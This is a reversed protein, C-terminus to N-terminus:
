SLLLPFHKQCMCIASLLVILFTGKWISVHLRHVTDLSLHACNQDCKCSKNPHAIWQLHLDDKEWAVPCLLPWLLRKSHSHVWWGSVEGELCAGPSLHISSVQGRCGAAQAASRCNRHHGCFLLSVGLVIQKSGSPSPWHYFCYYHVIFVGGCTFTRCHCTVLTCTHTLRNM